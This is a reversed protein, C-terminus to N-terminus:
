DSWRKHVWLWDAPRARIWDEFLTNMWVLVAKMDARRDGTAVFRRPPHITVRAQVGGQREVQVPVIPCDYRLALQAMASATMADRGFFPVAMGDNMKQDTLMGLSRGAALSRMAARAGEGGKPAFSNLPHRRLGRVIADVMPNSAHRYIITLPIGHAAIVLPALEWNALHATIFICHQGSERLCELHEGGVIQLRDPEDLVRRRNLQTNEGVARGLNDWMARLTRNIWAADRDAFAR